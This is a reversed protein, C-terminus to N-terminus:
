NQFANTIQMGNYELLAAYSDRGPLGGIPDLESITVGLDQAIPILAKPSFQPEAFVVRVGEEKVAHSFREIYQPAPQQGPYEEFTTIVTIGYSEAFYSFADHFTAIQIEPIKDIARTIKEDVARIRKEFEQQNASYVEAHEPYSRALQEAVTKSIIIANEPALWYHPDYTGHEDAHTEEETEEEDHHDSEDAHGYERLPINKDVIVYRDGPIDKSISQVWTDLEHGIMFIIESGELSEIDGPRPEFDHPSGGPPVIVSVQLTDGAIERVIDYLPFITASVRPKDQTITGTRFSLFAASTLITGLLIIIFLPNKIFQTVHKM